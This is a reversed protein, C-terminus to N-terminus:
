QTLQLLETLMAFPLMTRSHAVNCQMGGQTGRIHRCMTGTRMGTRMTQYTSASNKSKLGSRWPQLHVQKSTDNNRVVYM